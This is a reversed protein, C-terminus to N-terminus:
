KQISAPNIVSSYALNAKAPRDAVSIFFKKKSETSFHENAKFFVNSLGSQYHQNIPIWFYINLKELLKLVSTSFYLISFYADFKYSNFAM